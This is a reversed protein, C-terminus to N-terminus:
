KKQAIELETESLSCKQRLDEIEAEKQQLENTLLTRAASLKTVAENMKEIKDSYQKKALEQKDAYKKKLVALQENLEEMHKNSHSSAKAVMEFKTSDLVLHLETIKSQYDSIEADYKIRNSSIREELEQVSELTSNLRDELSHIQVTKQHNIQKMEDMEYYIKQQKSSLADYESNLSTYKSKISKFDNMISSYRHQSEKFQIEMKKCGNSLLKIQALQKMNLDNVDNIEQKLRHIEESGM